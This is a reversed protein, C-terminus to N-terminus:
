KFKVHYNEEIHNYDIITECLQQPMNQSILDPYITIGHKLM